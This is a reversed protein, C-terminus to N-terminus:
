WMHKHECGQADVWVMLGVWVELRYWACMMTMGNSLVYRYLLSMKNSRTIMMWTVSMWWGVRM